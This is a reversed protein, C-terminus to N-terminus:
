TIGETALAWHGQPVHTHMILQAKEEEGLFPYVSEILEPRNTCYALAQRVKVDSLIPHPTTFAGAAAGTAGEAAGGAEDTTETPATERVVVTERIVEPSAQVVVTERIVQPTSQAAPTAPGGCAALVPVILALLLTLAFSTRVKPPKM